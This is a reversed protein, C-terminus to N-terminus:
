QLKEIDSTHMLVFRRKEPVMTCCLDVVHVAFVCCHSTFHLTDLLYVFCLLDREQENVDRIYANIYTYSSDNLDLWKGRAQEHM